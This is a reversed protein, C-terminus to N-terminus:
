NLLLAPMGPMCCTHRLDLCTESDTHHASAPMLSRSLAAHAVAVCSKRMAVAGRRQINQLCAAPWLLLLPLADVPGM